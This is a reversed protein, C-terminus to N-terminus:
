YFYWCNKSAYFINFSHIFTGNWSARIHQIRSLSLSLKLWSLTNQATPPSRLLGAWRDRPKMGLDDWGTVFPRFLRILISSWSLRFAFYHTERVNLRQHLFEMMMIMMSKKKTWKHFMPGEHIEEMQNQRVSTRTGCELKIWGESTGTRNNREQNNM